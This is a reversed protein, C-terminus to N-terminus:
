ATSSEGQWTKGGGPVTSHTVGVPVHAVTEAGEEDQAVTVRRVSQLVM